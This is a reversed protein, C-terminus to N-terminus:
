AGVPLHARAIELIREAPFPKPVVGTIRPESATWSTMDLEGSVVYFPLDRELRQLLGLADLHPMRYDCLVVAVANAQVYALGALPDTFTVVAIGARGLIAEIARCLLPEDDIYVVPASM